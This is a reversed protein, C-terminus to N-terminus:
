QPTWMEKSSAESFLRGGEPLAGKALQIQLWRALDHASIALLGAPTASPSLNDREDLVKLTGIGRM